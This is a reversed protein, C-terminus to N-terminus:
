RNTQRDTQKYAQRHTQRAKQIHRNPQSYKDVQMEKGGAQLDTALNQTIFCMFVVYEMM